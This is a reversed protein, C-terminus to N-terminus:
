KRRKCGDLYYSGSRMPTFTNLDITEEDKLTSSFSPHLSLLNEIENLYYDSPELEFSFANLQGHTYKEDELATNVWLSISYSSHHLTSLSDQCTYSIITKLNLIYPMILNGDTWSTDGKISAEYMEYNTDYATLGFGLKFPFYAALDKFATIEPGAYLEPDIQMWSMFTRGEFSENLYGTNEPDLNLWDNAGDLNLGNGSHGPSRSANDKGQIM